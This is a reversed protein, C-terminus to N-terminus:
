SDGGTVNRLTTSRVKAAARLGPGACLALGRAPCAQTRRCRQGRLSRSVGCTLPSNVGLWREFPIPLSVRIRVTGAGRHCNALRM